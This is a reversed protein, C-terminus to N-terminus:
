LYKVISINMSFAFSFYMLFHLPFLEHFNWNLDGLKKSTCKSLLSKEIFQLKMKETDDSTRPESEKDADSKDEKDTNGADKEETTESKQESKENKETDTDMATILKHSEKRMEMLPVECIMGSFTQKEVYGDWKETFRRIEWEQLM